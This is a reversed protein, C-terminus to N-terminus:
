RPKKFLANVNLEADYDGELEDFIINDNDEGKKVTM